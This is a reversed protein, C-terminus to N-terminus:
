EQVFEWSKELLDSHVDPSVTRLLDLVTEGDSLYPDLQKHTEPDFRVLRSCMRQKDPYERWIDGQWNNENWQRFHERDISYLNRAPVSEGTCLWGSSDMNALPYAHFRKIFSDSPIDVGDIEPPVYKSTGFLFSKGVQDVPLGGIGSRPIRVLMFTPIPTKYVRNTRVTLDSSEFRPTEFVSGDEDEQLSWETLLDFEKVKKVVYVYPDKYYLFSDETLPCDFCPSGLISEVVASANVVTREIPIDRIVMNGRYDIVLERDKTM